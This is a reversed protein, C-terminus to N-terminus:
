QALFNEIEEALKGWRAEIEPDSRIWDCQFRLYSPPIDKFLEGYHKSKRFPFVCLGYDPRSYIVDAPAALQGTGNGEEVAEAKVGRARLSRLLMVASNDIEGPHAANDLALALLKRELDTLV